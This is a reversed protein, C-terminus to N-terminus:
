KGNHKAMEEKEKQIDKLMLLVLPIPIKLIDEYGQHRHIMLDQFITKVIDGDERHNMRKQIELVSNFM